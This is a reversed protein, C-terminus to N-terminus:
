LCNNREKILWLRPEIKSLLFIQVWLFFIAYNTMSYSQKATSPTHFASLKGMAGCNACQIVAMPQWPVHKEMAVEKNFMGDIEYSIEIRNQVISLSSSFVWVWFGSM